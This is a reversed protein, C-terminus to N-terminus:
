GSSIFVRKVLEVIKGMGIFTRMLSQMKIMMTMLTFFAVIRFQANAYLDKQSVM